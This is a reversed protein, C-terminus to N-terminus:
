QQQQQFFRRPSLLVDRGLASHAPVGRAFSYWHPRDVRYEVTFGHPALRPPWEQNLTRRLPASLLPVQPLVVENVSVFLVLGPLVVAANWGSLYHILLFIWFLVTLALSAYGKRIMYSRLAADTDKVLPAFAEDPLHQLAPPKTTGIKNNPGRSLPWVRFTKNRHRLMRAYLLLYKAEEEDYYLPSQETATAPRDSRHIFIYSELSSWWRPQDVVYEVVYGERAFSPQWEQIRAEIECQLDAQHNHNSWALLALAALCVVGYYFLFHAFFNPVYVLLLFIATLLPWFLLFIATVLPWFLPFSANMSLQIDKIFNDFLVTSLNSLGAPKYCSNFDYPISPIKLRPFCNLLNGVVMLKAEGEEDAYDPAPVFAMVDGVYETGDTGTNSAM